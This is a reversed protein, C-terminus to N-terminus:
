PLRLLVDYQVADEGHVAFLLRSGEIEATAFARSALDPEGVKEVLSQVTIYHIGDITSLNNRHVHGNFVACVKGSAALIDRVQHREQVFCYDPYKEFWVNGRLDQDDLPHHLFVLTPKDTSALDNQLWLRQEASITIDTHEVSSSFLVVCHMGGLDQSYYLRENRSLRCLDSDSLHVQDHNGIVNLVPMPLGNFCNLGLQYNSSDDQRSSSDEILDGLQVVFSPKHLSTLEDRLQSLYPLTNRSLKRIQGEYFKEPGLHSDAVLAFKIMLLSFCILDPANCFGPAFLRFM